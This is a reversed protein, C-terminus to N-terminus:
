PGSARPARWVGIGAYWSFMAELIEEQYCSSCDPPPLITRPNAIDHRGCYYSCAPSSVASPLPIRDEQFVQLRPREGCNPCVIWDLLRKKMGRRSHLLRELLFPEQM